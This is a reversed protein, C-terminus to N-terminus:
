GMKLFIEQLGKLKVEASIDLTEVFRLYRAVIDAIDDDPSRPIDPAAVELLYRKVKHYDFIGDRGVLEDLSVDFINALIIIKDITPVNDGREWKAIAQRSVQCKEALLEQSFGKQKRYNQINKALQM